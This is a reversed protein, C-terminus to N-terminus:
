YGVSTPIPTYELACFFPVPGDMLMNFEVISGTAESRWRLDIQRGAITEREPKGQVDRMDRMMRTCDRQDSPVLVVGNLKGDRSFRFVVSKTFGGAKSQSVLRVTSNERDLGPFRYPGIGVPSAATVEQETMGWTTFQWGGAILALMSALM